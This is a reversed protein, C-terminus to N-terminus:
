AVEVIEQQLCIEWNGTGRILQPCIRIFNGNISFISNIDTLIDREVIERPEREEHVIYSILSTVGKGNPQIVDPRDLPLNEDLLDRESGLRAVKYKALENWIRSVPRQFYDYNKERTALINGTETEKVSDVRVNDGSVTFTIKCGDLQKVLKTGKITEIDQNESLNPEFFDKTRIIKSIEIEPPIGKGSSDNLDRTRTTFELSDLLASKGANNKGILINIRKIIDFGEATSGFCKHHRLKISVEEIKTKSINNM